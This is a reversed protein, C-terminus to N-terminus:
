QSCYALSLELLSELDKFNITEVTTHIYKTPLSLTLSRVGARSRHIAGADTGGSPLVEMQYPIKNEEALKVFAQVLKRDSIISSDMVKIAVGKGLETIYEEPRSGPSEHSITTDIAVGIDPDIGYAATGAGRLGVEEQVTFAVFINKSPNKIKQILRIGAWVAIRNDFAKGNVLNGIEAFDQKLTVMDGIKVIEKVKKPDLGLEVFFERAEPIKKAEDAKLLHAPPVAPNLIGTYIGSETCVNVRRSFLNRPDFGGVPQIRLYGRDDVFRVYFGIEDMHCAFMVKEASAKASKKYAILNGLADEEISDAKGKLERQIIDRIAQEHGAIASAESLEKLLKM